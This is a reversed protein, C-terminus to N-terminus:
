WPRGELLTASTTDYNGGHISEEVEFVRWSLNHFGFLSAVLVVASVVGLIIGLVLGFSGMISMIGVVLSAVLAVSCLLRMRSIWRLYIGLDSM